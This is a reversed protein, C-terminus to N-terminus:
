GGDKIRTRTGVGVLIKGLYPFWCSVLLTGSGKSLPLSGSGSGVRKESIPQASQFLAQLIFNKCLLNAIFYIKLVSSLKAAPTM